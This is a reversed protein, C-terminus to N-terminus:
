SPGGLLLMTAYTTSLAAHVAAAERLASAKPSTSLAAEELYRKAKGTHFGMDYAYGMRREHRADAEDGPSGKFPNERRPGLLGRRFM